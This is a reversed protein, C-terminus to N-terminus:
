HRARRRLLALAALVLLPMVASLGDGDGVRACGKGQVSFLGSPTNTDSATATRTSQPTRTPSGTPSTTPSDSPTSTPSDEATASPTVTPTDAPTPTPTETPDPHSSLFVTISGDAQNTTIVDDRGDDDLDAVLVGSPSPGAQLPDGAPSLGGAGDGLFFRVQGGASTVVADLKGDDNFDGLGLASPSAGVDVAPQPDFSVTGGSRRGLFVRLKGDTTVFALDPILDRNFDGTTFPDAVRM